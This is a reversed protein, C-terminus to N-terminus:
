AASIEVACCQLECRGPELRQSLLRQDDYNFEQRGIKVNLGKRGIHEIWAEKLDLSAADGTVASSSYQSEDGWVRVDQLIFAAKLNSSEYLIGLHSRLSVFVAAPQDALALSKYGQRFEGRPQLALAVSLEARSLTSCLLIALLIHKHNARSEKPTDGYDLTKVM